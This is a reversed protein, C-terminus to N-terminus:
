ATAELAPSVSERRLEAATEHCAERYLKADTCLRRRERNQEVTLLMALETLFQEREARPIRSAWKGYFDHPHM